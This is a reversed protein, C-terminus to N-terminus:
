SVLRGEGVDLLRGYHMNMYGNGALMKNTLRVIGQASGRRSAVRVEDGESAGLRAADEPHIEVLNGMNLSPWVQGLRSELCAM